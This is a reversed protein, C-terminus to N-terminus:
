GTVASHRFGAPSGSRVLGRLVPGRAVNNNTARAPSPQRKVDPTAMQLLASRPTTRRNGPRGIVLVDTWFFRSSGCWRLFKGAGGASTIAGKRLRHGVILPASVATSVIGLLANLGKVKNYGYGVGQKAYGYLEWM